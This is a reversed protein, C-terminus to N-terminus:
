RKSWGWLDACGHKLPNSDNNNAEEDAFSVSKSVCMKAM